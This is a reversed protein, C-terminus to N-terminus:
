ARAAQPADDRSGPTLPWVLATLVILQFVPMLWEYFLFAVGKSIEGIALFHVAIAWSSYTPWWVAEYFPMIELFGSVRVFFYKLLFFLLYSGAASALTIRWRSWSRLWALCGGLGWLSVVFQIGHYHTYYEPQLSIDLISQVIATLWSGCALLLVANETRNDRTHYPIM